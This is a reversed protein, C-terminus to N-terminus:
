EPGSGTKTAQGQRNGYGYGRGGRRNNGDGRYNNYGGRGNGRGRHHYNGAGGGRGGRHGGRRAHNQQLAIAGFTDQNLVREEGATLRGKRSIEPDVSSSLTDFFNDKIYQGSLTGNTNAEEAVEALVEQKKFSTLASEFDFEGVPSEIASTSTGVTREKLRLLHEGTGVSTTPAPPPNFNRPKPLPKQKQPESKLSRNQQKNDSQHKSNIPPAPLEERIEEHVFLDKIENGPFSVFPILASTGAVAKPTPRNETGYCLVLLFHHFKFLLQSFFINVMKCSLRHNQKISVSYSEKM